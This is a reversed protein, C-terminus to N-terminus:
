SLMLREVRLGRFWDAGSMQRKGAPQVVDLVLAGDKCGVVLEKDVIRAESPFESTSPVARAQIVRVQLGDLEFWAMPEPNMARIKDLQSTATSSFDLKALERNPKTAKKDTSEAQQPVATIIKSEGALLVEIMLEAGIQSLRTLLTGATDLDDIELEDRAIIPGTDIGEDLRFVTVGTTKKGLLLAHQVPAPGPLEPLLSYHLNLWGLRPIELVEKKFITGYAVVAGIDADLSKIWETTKPDMSNSKHVSLGLREGMVAVPSSQIQKNRGVIADSRTLVGVINVGAQHLRELTFAANEPTGAFVVKLSSAMSSLM